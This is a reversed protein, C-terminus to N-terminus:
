FKLALIDDESSLAPVAAGLARTDLVFVFDWFSLSLQGM